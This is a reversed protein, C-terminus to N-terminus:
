AMKATPIPQGGIIMYAGDPYLRKRPAIEPQQLPARSALIADMPRNKVHMRKGGKGWVLEAQGPPSETEGVPKRGWRPQGHAGQGLGSVTSDSKGKYGAM